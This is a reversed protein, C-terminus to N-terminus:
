VFLTRKWWEEYHCCLPQIYHLHSLIRQSNGIKTFWGKKFVLPDMNRKYQFTLGTFPLMKTSRYNLFTHHSFSKWAQFPVRLKAICFPIWYKSSDLFILTVFIPLKNQKQKKGTSTAVCKCVGFILVTKLGVYPFFWLSWHKQM